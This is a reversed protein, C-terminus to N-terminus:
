QSLDKQHSTINPATRQTLDIVSDDRIRRLQYATACHWKALRLAERHATPRYGRVAVSKLLAEGDLLEIRYCIRPPPAVTNSM